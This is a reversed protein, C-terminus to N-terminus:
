EVGMAHKEIRVFASLIAMVVNWAEPENYLYATSDDLFKVIDSNKVYTEGGIVRYTINAEVKFNM